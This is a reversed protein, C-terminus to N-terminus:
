VTLEMVDKNLMKVEEEEAGWDGREGWGKRGGGGGRKV